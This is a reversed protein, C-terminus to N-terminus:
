RMAEIVMRKEAEEKEEASKKRPIPIYVEYLKMPENQRRYIKEITKCNSKIWKPMFVKILGRTGLKIATRNRIADKIRRDYVGIVYGEKTEYLPEEVIYEPVKM